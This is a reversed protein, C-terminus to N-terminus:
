GHHAVKEFIVKGMLTLSALINWACDGIWLLAKRAQVTLPVKNPKAILGRKIGYKRAQKVSVGNYLDRGAQYIQKSTMKSMQVTTLRDGRPVRFFRVMDRYSAIVTARDRQARPGTEHLMM